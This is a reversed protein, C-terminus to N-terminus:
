VKKIKLCETELCNDSPPASFYPGDSYSAEYEKICADCHVKLNSDLRGFFRHDKVGIESDEM